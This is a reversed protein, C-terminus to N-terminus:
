FTRLLLKKKETRINKFRTGYEKLLSSSDQKKIILYFKEGHRIKEAIEDHNAQKVKGGTYFQSSYSKTSYSYVPLTGDTQQIIFKDTNGIKQFTNILPSTILILTAAVPLILALKIFIKQNIRDWYYITLLALAPMSPLTYTHILSKSVTFFVPTWFAWLVLYCLWKSGRISKRDAWLKGLVAIIWPLAFGVLFVWIIGVPQVKPFGYKDGKWSPDTYRKIHEGVLFYDLFGPTAKEAFYYWPAAIALMIAIGILWPLKFFLGRYERFIATWFLLPPATLLLIIPGKALFGFGAAVFFLYKWYSKGGNLAEWFSAMMLTICILLSMDTSVVGAHLLFEPLTLLIFAALYKPSDKPVFRQVLLIAAVAILFSPLRAAFENVGFINISIATLWTSLPPKAWFPVGYDIQPTTFNGTEAMIRGIESYRAETKDMLPVIANLILRLLLILFVTIKFFQPKSPFRNVFNM